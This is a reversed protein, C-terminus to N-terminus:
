SARCKWTAIRIADPAIRRVYDPTRMLGDSTNRMKRPDDFNVTQKVLRMGLVGTYFDATRQADSTVLTIHHLGLITM